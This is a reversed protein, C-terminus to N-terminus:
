FLTSNFNQNTLDKALPLLQCKDRFFLYKFEIGKVLINLDFDFYDIINEEVFYVINYRSFILDYDFIDMEM